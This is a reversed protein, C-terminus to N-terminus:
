AGKQLKKERPIGQERPGPVSHLYVQTTAINAHGLIIAIKDLSLGKELLYMAKSHRMTHPHISIGSQKLAQRHIEHSVYCRNMQRGCQTEFLFETGGFTRQIERFDALPLYVKREKLGKGMVRILVPDGEVCDELRINILETVRCGSWFLAMTICCVRPTMKRALREVERRTLYDVGALQSRAPRKRRLREFSERMKLRQVASKGEFQKFYFEKIGQMRINYTCPNLFSSLWEAINDIDFDNPLGREILWMFYSKVAESYVTRSSPLLQANRYRITRCQGKTLRKSQM